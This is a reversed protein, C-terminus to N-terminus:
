DKVDKMVDTVCKMKEKFFKKTKKTISVVGATALSFVALFAYPHRMMRGKKNNLM